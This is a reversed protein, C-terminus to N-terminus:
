GAGFSRVKHYQIASLAIFLQSESQKDVRLRKIPSARAYPYKAEPAASAPAPGSRHPTGHPPTFVCAHRATIHLTDPWVNLLMHNAHSHGSPDNNALRAKIKYVAFVLRTM